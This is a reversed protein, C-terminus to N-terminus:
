QVAFGLAFFCLVVGGLFGLPGFAVTAGLALVVAISFTFWSATPILAILAMGTGVGLVIWPLSDDRREDGHHALRDRYTSAAEPASKLMRERWAAHFEPPLLAPPSGEPLPPESKSRRSYAVWLVAIALVAWISVVIPWSHWARPLDTVGYGYILIGIIWLWVVM